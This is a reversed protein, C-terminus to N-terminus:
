ANPHDRGDLIVDHLFFMDRPVVLLFLEKILNNIHGVLIDFVQSCWGYIATRFHTWLVAVTQLEIRVKKRPDFSSVTATRHVRALVGFLTWLVAVM